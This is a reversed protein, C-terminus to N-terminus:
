FDFVYNRVCNATMNHTVPPFNTICLQGILNGSIQVAAESYLKYDAQRLTPLGQGAGFMERDVM